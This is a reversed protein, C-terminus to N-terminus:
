HLRFELVMAIKTDVPRGAVQGPEFTWREACRIAAVDLGFPDLSRVVRLVRVAGNALVVAELEVAGQIKNRMADPTYRPTPSAVQRLGTVKSREVMGEPAPQLGFGEFAVISGSAADGFTVRVQTVVDVPQGDVTAPQFHLSRAAQLAEEDLGWLADASRALRLQGMSGDARVVTEIEVTGARKARRAGEPYPVPQSPGLARPGTVGASTVLDRIGAAFGAPRPIVIAESWLSRVGNELRVAVRGNFREVTGSACVRVHLARVPFDVGFDAPNAVRFTGIQNPAPQGLDLLLSGKPDSRTGAVNGCVVVNSGIQGELTAFDVSPTVSQSVAAAPVLAFAVATAAVRSALRM